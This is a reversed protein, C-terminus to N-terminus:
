LLREFYSAHSECELWLFTARDGEQVSPINTSADFKNTFYWYDLVRICALYVTAGDEEYVNPNHKIGKKSVEIIQM